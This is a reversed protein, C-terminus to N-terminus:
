SNAPAPKKLAELAAATKEYEETASKVEAELGAIKKEPDGFITKQLEAITNAHLKGRLDAPTADHNRLSTKASNLKGMLENRKRATSQVLALADSLTKQAAKNKAAAEATAKEQQERDKDAKAMSNGIEENIFIARDSEVGRVVKIHKIDKPFQHLRKAKDFEQASVLRPEGAGNADAFGLFLVITKM